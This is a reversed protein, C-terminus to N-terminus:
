NLYNNQTLLLQLHLIYLQDFKLSWIIFTRDISHHFFNSIDHSTQSSKCPYYIPFSYLHIYNIIWESQEKLYIYHTNIITKLEYKSIFLKINNM